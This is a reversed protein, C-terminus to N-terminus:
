YQSTYALKVPRLYFSTVKDFVHSQFITSALDDVFILSFCIKFFLKRFRLLSTGYVSEGITWIGYIAFKWAAGCFAGDWFRWSFISTTQVNWFDYNELRLCLAVEPWVFRFAKSVHYCRVAEQSLQEGNFTM